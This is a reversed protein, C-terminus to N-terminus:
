PFRKIGYTAMLDAVRPNIVQAAAIDNAGTADGKKLKAIGRGYLSEAIKPNRELAADYDRIAANFQEMKLYILGRSDLTDSANPLLRLSETCDALADSLQNLIGRADCRADYADAYRPNLEIARGYDQIAHTLDGKTKYAMGRSLFADAFQPNLAIAESYDQIARDFDGREKYGIGRNRFVIALTEGSEKGFQIVASCGGIQLDPLNRDGNSCWIWYQSQQAVLARTDAMVGVAAVLVTVALGWLGEWMENEQRSGVPERGYQDNPRPWLTVWGQPWGVALASGTSRLLDPGGDLIPM